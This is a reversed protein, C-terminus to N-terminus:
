VVRSSRPVQPQHGCRCHLHTNHTINIHTTIHTTIHHHHPHHHTPSLIHMKCQVCWCVWCAGLVCGVGVGGEWWLDDGRTVDLETPEQARGSSYLLLANSDTFVSHTHTAGCQEFQGAHVPFGGQQGKVIHHPTALVLPTSIPPQPLLKEQLKHGLICGCLPLLSAPHRSHCAPTNTTPQHM